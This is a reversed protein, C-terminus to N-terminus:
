KLQNEGKGRKKLGDELLLVVQVNVAQLLITMQSVGQPQVVGGEGAQGMEM